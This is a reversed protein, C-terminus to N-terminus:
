IVVDLISLFLFAVGQLTHLGQSAALYSELSAGKGGCWLIVM